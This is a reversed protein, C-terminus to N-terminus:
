KLRQIEAQQEREDAYSQAPEWEREPPEEGDVSPGTRAAWQREAQNELIAHCEKCCETGFFDTTAEVPLGNEECFPCNM